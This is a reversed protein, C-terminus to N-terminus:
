GKNMSHRRSKARIPGYSVFGSLSPREGHRGVSRMAALEKGGCECHGRRRGCESLLRKLGAGGAIVGAQM